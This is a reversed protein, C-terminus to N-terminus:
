NEAGRKRGGVVYGMGDRKEISFRHHRYESWSIHWTPLILYKAM